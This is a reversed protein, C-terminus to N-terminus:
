SRYIMSNRLSTNVDGSARTGPVSYKTGKIGYGKIAQQSNVAKVAENNFAICHQYVRGETAIVEEALHLDWRSFDVEICVSDAFQDLKSKFM